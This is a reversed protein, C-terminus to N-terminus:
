PLFFTTTVEFHGVNANKTPSAQPPWFICLYVTSTGPATAPVYSAPANISFLVGFQANGNALTTATGDSTIYAPNAFNNTTKTLIPIPFGPQLSSTGTFDTTPAARRTSCIMEALSAAQLVQKPNQNSQLAAVFVGLLSIGAFTLIALALVVEVLSFAKRRSVRLTM